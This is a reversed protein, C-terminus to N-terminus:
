HLLTQDLGYDMRSYLLHLTGRLHSAINRSMSDLRGPSPILRTPSSQWLSQQSAAGLPWAPYEQFYVLHDAM